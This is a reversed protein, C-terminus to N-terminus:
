EPKPSGAPRLTPYQIGLQDLYTGFKEPRLLYKKM